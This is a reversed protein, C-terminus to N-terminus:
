NGRSDRLLFVALVLSRRLLERPLNRSRLFHGGRYCGPASWRPADVLGWHVVRIGADTHRSYLRLDSALHDLRLSSDSPYPFCEVRLGCRARDSHHSRCSRYGLSEAALLFSKAHFHSEHKPNPTAAPFRM